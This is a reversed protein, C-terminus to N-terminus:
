APTTCVSPDRLYIDVGLFQVAGDPDYVEIRSLKGVTLPEGRDVRATFVPSTVDPYNRTIVRYEVDDRRILDGPALEGGFTTLWQGSAKTAPRPKCAHM